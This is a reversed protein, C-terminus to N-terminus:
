WHSPMSKSLIGKLKDLTNQQYLQGCMIRYALTDYEKSGPSFHSQIEFMSTIWNTTQGIDNGFSNINSRIFDDESPICKSARRQACMLTPTEKHREVLIRNDTLMVIDGDFDCGNLAATTTDWANLITCTKIHQYWYRM